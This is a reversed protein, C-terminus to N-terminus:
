LGNEYLSNNLRKKVAQLARCITRNVTQQSVNESAAIEYESMDMFFYAYLRKAQKDPLSAMADYLERKLSRGAIIEYPPPGFCQSEGEIGDGRNLSYYAKYRYLRRM